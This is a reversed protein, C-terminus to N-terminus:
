GQTEVCFQIHTHKFTLLKTHQGATIKHCSSVLQDIAYHVSYKMPGIFHTTSGAVAAPGQSQKDPEPFLYNNKRLLLNYLCMHALFGCHVPMIISYFCLRRLKRCLNERSLLRKVKLSRNSTFKTRFSQLLFFGFKVADFCCVFLRASVCRPM